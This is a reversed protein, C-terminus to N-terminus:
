WQSELNMSSLPPENFWTLPENIGLFKVLQLRKYWTIAQMAQLRRCVEGVTGVV